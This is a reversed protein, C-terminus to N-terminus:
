HNMSLRFSMPFKLHPLCIRPGISKQLYVMMIHSDHLDRKLIPFNPSTKQNSHKALSSITYAIHDLKVHGVEPPTFLYWTGSRFSLSPPPKMKKPIKVGLNPSPSGIQGM